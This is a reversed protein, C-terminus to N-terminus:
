VNIYYIAHEFKIYYMDVFYKIPSRVYVQHASIALLSIKLDSSFFLLLLLCSSVPYMPIKESWVPMQCSTFDKRKRKKKERNTKRRNLVDNRTPHDSINLHTFIEKEIPM